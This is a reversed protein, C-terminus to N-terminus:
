KTKVVSGEAISLNNRKLYKEVQSISISRKDHNAMIRRAPPIADKIKSKVDELVVYREFDEGFVNYVLKAFANTITRYKLPKEGREEMFDVIGNGRNIVSPYKTAYISKHYELGNDMLYSVCKSLNERRHSTIILRTDFDQELSRLLLNVAEISEPKLVPEAVYNMQFGYRPYNFKADWLTGDIDLFVYYPEKKPNKALRPAAYASQSLRYNREERM